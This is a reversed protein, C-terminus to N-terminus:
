EGERRGTEVDAEVGAEERAGDDDIGPSWAPVGGDVIAQMDSPLSAHVKIMQGSHPHPFALASAHLAHRPFGIKGRLEDTLGGEFISLFVEDPQGYLKDGLIPFGVHELHARIQHTRGTLPRCEMLAHAAMRARVSFETVSPDGEPSVGRRLKVAANASGLAADVRLEDWEPVGRVIALYTKAVRRHAFAEKMSRNSAEDKTLLVVGSTERDLRHSLDIRVGPRADRVLGILAWAYHQGVPHVLMGAPKDLAITWEDEHVVAPMPPAASTPALGPVWIRLVEGHRLVSAPKLVRDDSQVLGDRIFRAFATRSWDSFRLSLFTDARRGAARDLINVVRHPEDRNVSARYGTRTRGRRRIRVTSARLQITTATPM